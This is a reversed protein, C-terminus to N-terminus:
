SKSGPTLLSKGWPQVAIKGLESKFYKESLPNGVRGQEGPFGVESM